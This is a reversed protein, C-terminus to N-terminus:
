CVVDGENVFLKGNYGYVMIFGNDYKLIVFLGYVKVGFGVYVVCGNVVVWVLYDFGFVVIVVGCMKGVVFLMVVVGM